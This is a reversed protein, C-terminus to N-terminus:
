LGLDALIENFMARLDEVQMYPLAFGFMYNTNSETAHKIGIVQSSYLDFEEQDPDYPGDGVPKSGYRYIPVPPILMPNEMSEEFLEDEFYACPGLGQTLTVLSNWVEGDDLELDLVTTLPNVPVAQILFPYTINSQAIQIVMDPDEAYIKMPIGFNDELLYYSNNNCGNYVNYANNGLSAIIDGGLQYFIALCNNNKYFNSGGTPKDTHYIVLEYDQLDIPCISDLDFHLLSNYTKVEQSSVSSDWLDYIEITGTYDSLAEMYIDDLIEDPSFNSDADDDIILIKNQKESKTVPEVINFRMESPTPDGINSLDVARVKFCHEGTTLDFLITNQDIDAGVPIRTWGGLSDYYTEVVGALPAYHYPEDDFQLDFYKLESFYIEQTHEDLVLGVRQNFPSNTVTTTSQGIEGYEGQFGWHMYIKLNPSNIATFTSDKDFWLPIGYKYGDITVEEPVDVTGLFDAKRSSYHYTGIAFIDNYTYNPLGDGNPDFGNYILTGPYFGEKVAFNIEMKDSVIGALDYAEVTLYTSDLFTEENGPDPTNKIIFPGPDDPDAAEEPILLFETVEDQFQTSQWVDEYGGDAESIVNGDNDRVELKFKFYNPENGILPDTDRIRFKLVVGTGIRNGDIPGQTSEIALISPTKSTSKYFRRFTESEDGRDDICKIEFTSTIPAYVINESVPDIVPTGDDNFLQEGNAPFNIEAHVADTWITKQADPNNLSISEDAGAEYHLVWGENDDTMGNENEDSIIYEKGPTSIAQGDEDLIRYAFAEVWGDSDYAEWYITQQFVLSDNVAALSDVGGYSTIYIIPSTNPYQDGDRGCSSIVLLLTVLLAFFIIKKRIMM